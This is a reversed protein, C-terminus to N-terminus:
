WFTKKLFFKCTNQSIIEFANCNQLYKPLIPTHFNPCLCNRAFFNLAVNHVLIPVDVVQVLKNACHLFNATQHVNRRWKACPNIEVMESHEVVRAKLFSVKNFVDIEIHQIDFGHRVFLVFLSLLKCFHPYLKTAFRSSGLCYNRTRNGNGAGNGFFALQQRKNQRLLLYLVRRPREVSCVHMTSYNFLVFICKM